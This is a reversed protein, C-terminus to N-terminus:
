FSSISSLNKKEENKMEFTSILVLDVDVLYYYCYFDHVFYSIFDFFTSIIIHHPSHFLPLGHASPPLVITPQLHSFTYVSFLLFFHLSSESSSFPVPFLPLLLLIYHISSSFLLLSLFFTLFTRQLLNRQRGFCISYFLFMMRHQLWFSLLLLLLLRLLSSSWSSSSLHAIFRISHAIKWPYLASFSLSPTLFTLEM